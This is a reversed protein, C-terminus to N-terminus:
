RDVLLVELTRPGHVGEVRNLEIDSTASPGSVFTLPRGAAVSQQLQEFAEPVLEVVQEAFVVCLHYDPLLTIARRGQASGGDLVITGTAAIAIRCGTIVGDSGDLEAFSLGRDGLTDLDAPLWEAPLDAPVVLRAAGREACARAVETRLEAAAVRRVRVRYEETREVFLALREDEGLDGSRRYGRELPIEDREGPQLDGLATRISQLLQAKGPRDAEGPDRQPQPDPADNSM